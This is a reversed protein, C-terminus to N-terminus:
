LERTALLLADGHRTRDYAIRLQNERILRRAVEVRFIAILHESHQIGEVLLAGGDQHHGMRMLM